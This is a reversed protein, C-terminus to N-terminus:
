KKKTTVKVSSEPGEGVVNYARVFVTYEIGPHLGPHSTWSLTAAGLEDVFHKKTYKSSWSVHYGKVTGSAKSWHVTVTDKTTAGASLKVGGPKATPKPEPKPTPTPTPLPATGGAPTPPDPAEGLYKIAADVMQQQSANPTQGRLYADLAASVATGSYGLGVLYNSAAGRWEENTSYKANATGTSAPATGEQLKQSATQYESAYTAGSAVDYVEDKYAVGSAPDIEDGSSGGGGGLKARLKNGGYVVVFLGALWVGAPLPGWKQTLFGFTGGGGFPGHKKSTDETPAPSPVVEPDDAM